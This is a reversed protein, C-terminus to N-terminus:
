IFRGSSNLYRSYKYGIEVTSAVRGGETEFPAPGTASRLSVTYFRVINDIPNYAQLDKGSEDIRRFLDVMFETIEVAKSVSTSVITYVIYENCIWWDDDYGEVEYDYVIFPLEPMLNNFEPVEQSPIIPIVSTTFDDPRYQTEELIGSEKLENWLYANIISRANKTYDAM